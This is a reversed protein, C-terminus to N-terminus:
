SGAASEKLSEREALSKIVELMKREMVFSIPELLLPGGLLRPVLGDAHDYRTRSLLRTTGDPQQMVLMAWSTSMGVRDDKGSPSGSLVLASPGDVIAASMPPAQAHLRIPDGERLDQHEELIGSANVIQCGVLNELRQYSYFGGRGQGLQAIWPWVQAASARITIAHNATWKPEPVLADGPHPGRIEEETAGWRRRMGRLFPTLVAFAIAFFGGLSELWSTGLRPPAGRESM